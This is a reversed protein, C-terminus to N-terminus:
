EDEGLVNHQLRNHLFNEMEKEALALRRDRDAYSKCRVFKIVGGDSGFISFGAPTVRDAWDPVDVFFLRLVPIKNLVPYKKAFLRNRYPHAGYRAFDRKVFMSICFPNVGEIM